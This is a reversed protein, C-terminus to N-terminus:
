SKVFIVRVLDCDQISGNSALNNHNVSGDDFEIQSMILNLKYQPM